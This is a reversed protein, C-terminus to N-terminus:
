KEKLHELWSLKETHMEQILATAHSPSIFSPLGERIVVDIAINFGHEFAQDYIAEERENEPTVNKM